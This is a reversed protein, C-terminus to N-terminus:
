HNIGNITPRHISDTEYLLNKYIDSVSIDHWFFPHLVQWM